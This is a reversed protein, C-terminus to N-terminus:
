QKLLKKTFGKEGTVVRVFYLGSPKGALSFDKHTEGAMEDGLIMEGCTGYVAVYGNDSLNDDKLELTFLGTTPNPYIRFLSEDPPATILEEVATVVIPAALPICYQATTTIYGHMYGGSIVMTGPLYRINQGAIM